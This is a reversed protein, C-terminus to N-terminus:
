GGRSGARNLRWDESTLRYETCWVLGDDQRCGVSRFGLKELVRVSAVNAPRAIAALRDLKVVEFAYELVRGAAETAYGRGWHSPAYEYGIQLDDRDRGSLKALEV